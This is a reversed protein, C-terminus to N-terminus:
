VLEMMMQVPAVGKRQYEKWLSYVTRFGLTEIFNNTLYRHVISMCSMAWVRRRQGYIARMVTRKNGGMAVLKRVITRKRKWQKLLIARLRRRIHSDIRQLISQIGKTCIGFFGIWGTLYQNVRKTCSEISNGFNRPTLEVIKQNIRELSRESLVIEVASKDKNHRLTFGLFHRDKPRAVASKKENVELRMKKEIFTRISAMARQGALESKVYINCDDAYRVFKHGRRMLESDLEDLYINSLLPSLTGGQPVGEVTEIVVGTPLVVKAKMMQGILKLIRVDEVKTEIKALLRQHNVRNFFDKLDIDVVFEYGEAVYSQAERIATHCSRNPRFGHSSAHFTPEYLPELIMKLATQVIRDIVNPIGLGREGGGYKPIWVRRIDGPKYTGNNLARILNPKTEGWHERVDNVTQRDPGSAGKNAFVTKEARDLCVIMKELSVSTRQNGITLPKPSGIQISPIRKGGDRLEASQEKEATGNFLSLQFVQEDDAIAKGGETARTVVGKRSGQLVSRNDSKQRTM